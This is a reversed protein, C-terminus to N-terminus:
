DIFYNENTGSERIIIEFKEKSIEEFGRPASNVDPIVGLEILKALNLRKPFTYIYLFNVIFPAVWKGNSFKYQWHRKLEKDDFVSRKRCLEIFKQESQINNYVSEVLGITTVVSKHYGGTRYFLILDGRSVSRNYSRSVYVKQIANRHPENEVFNQPSENNLVSDPLLETHYNPYIPVLFIRNNRSIYPYTLKPYEGNVEKSFDRVLVQEVGNQTTSTGWYKFGWDELLRILRIQEDRKEFITVYVEDVQNVLANDFIIKLFREGLKYGTSTVKFTGVKLRKKPEFVPEITSYQEDENEIKVYLFAGIEEDAYCIYSVEDSKKKFWNEFESYDQKFSDFFEDELKVNGFFEKKVALVKYDTLDPNEATVKEIYSDITYVKEAVGLIEAKKHIGRDETVIVDVRGSYLEKVISTDISDNNSTDNERIAKIKDDDPSITKLQNYNDIKIKMTEVVSKDKHTSLEEVSLPHIIKTAKTKDFWNFLKGIDANRVKSAERHIIINTDLLVRM